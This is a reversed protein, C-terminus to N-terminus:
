AVSDSSRVTIAMPSDGTGDNLIEFPLTHPLLEPGGATPTEGDFRVCPINVTITPFFTAEIQTAHQYILTIAATTGNIFRNYATTGAWEANLTGTYDRQAGGEIQEKKQGPTTGRIFYRDTALGNDCAVTWDKVDFASGGVTVAGRIYSYPLQGSPYSASALGTALTESIGDVTLKLMLFGSTDNSMEWNTIKCGPYTFPQTTGTNDTRGMQVTLARADLAGELCKHDRTLTAGGPTTTNVTGLCNKFVIGFGKTMVPLNIDGSIGEKGSDWNGSGASRRGGARLSTFKIREISHKVSEGSGDLEYFRSPTVGVGPTTEEALGFQTNSGGSLAM